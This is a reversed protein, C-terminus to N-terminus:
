HPTVTITKTAKEGYQDTAVLVLITYPFQAVLLESFHGDTDVTIPRGQLTIQNARRVLGSVEFTSSAVYDGNQPSYVVISPGAVLPYARFAGYFLAVLVLGGLLILELRKRLDQYPTM